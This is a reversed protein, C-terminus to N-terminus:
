RDKNGGMKKIIEELDGIVEDYANSVGSWYADSYVKCGKKHNVIKLDARERKRILKKLLVEIEM